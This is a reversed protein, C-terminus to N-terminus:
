LKSGGARDKKYGCHILEHCSESAEPLTTWLPHWGTDDNWWGWDKPFNPLSNNSHKLLKSPLKGM